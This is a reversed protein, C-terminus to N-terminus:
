EHAHRHTCSTTHMVKHRQTCSTTHMGGHAHGDHEHWEYAHRTTRMDSTHEGQRTHVQNDRRSFAMTQVGRQGAPLKICVKCCGSTILAM